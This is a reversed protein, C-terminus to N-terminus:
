QFPNTVPRVIDLYLLALSIFVLFGLVLAMVPAVKRLDVKRGRIKEVGLILLYGGDLPPLPLLNFVGIIVAFGVLTFILYEIEGATAAQGAIRGGGVPGVPDEPGRTGGEGLATFIRGIGQPSFVTGIVRFSQVIYFGTARTATWAAVQVPQTARERKSVIGVLGVTVPKGESDKGSAVAPKLEFELREGDRLVSVKIVQGGKSRIADKVEDWESVFRDDIAVIEDGPRLGAEAAPGVVEAEELSFGPPAEIKNQVDALTTTADLVGVFGFLVFLVVFALVFHTFSGASLVVARQWHPKAAFTRPLESEPISQWPNMGAIKVYGGVLFAKVGFTTEGKTRSYLQPGFGIFFEEVKIGFRRATMFHGFEHFVIVVLLTFVFVVVGVVGSM